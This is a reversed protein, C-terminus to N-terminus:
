DQLMRSLITGFNGMHEVEGPLYDPGGVRGIILVLGSHGLPAAALSSDLLSWSEPIWAEEEPNLIRAKPINLQSPASGDDGPAADSATVRSVPSGDQLLIAWSSTIAQPIRDVLAAITDSHSSAGAVAALMAIQGRRDVTGSFPRISDVEVGPVSTAASILTDAMAHGPLHVVMDDMATGDPLTEIVDVSKINGDILGIAEALLGLSGPTDPLLVRILYKM